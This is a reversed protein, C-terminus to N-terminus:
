IDESNIFAKEKANWKSIGMFFGFLAGFIIKTEWHISPEKYTINFWYSWVIEFVYDIIYSGLAFIVGLSLVGHILVYRTRGKGRAKTWDEKQERNM